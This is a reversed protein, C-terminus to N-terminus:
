AKPPSILSLGVSLLSFGYPCALLQLQLFWGGQRSKEEGGLYRCDVNGTGNSSAAGPM